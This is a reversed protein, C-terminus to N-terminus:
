SWETVRANGTASTWIGTILGTYVQTVGVQEYFSGPGVLVAFSTSSATGGTLDLYLTAASDNHVAFGKRSTNSALVTVSSASASVNTKAGTGASTYPLRTPDVDLGNTADGGILSTGGDAGDVLKMRQVHQM